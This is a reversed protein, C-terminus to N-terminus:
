RGGVLAKEVLEEIKKKPVAGVIQGIVQGGKFMLLTPMSRVGYREAIIPDADVDITGVRVRGAYAEAVADVSPAIAKCPSCWAATFDVLVPEPGGIHDDFNKTNMQLTKAGM